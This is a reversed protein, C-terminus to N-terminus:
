SEDGSYTFNGADGPEHRGRAWGDLHPTLPGLSDELAALLPTPVQDVAFAELTSEGGYRTHDRRFSLAHAERARGLEGEVERRLDASGALLGRVAGIAALYDNWARRMANLKEAAHTLRRNAELLEAGDDALLLEAITVGLVSAFGILEDVTATRNASPKDPNEIRWITRRDMKRFPGPPRNYDNMAQALDDQSWGRAERLTRLREGVNRTGGEWSIREAVDTWETGIM